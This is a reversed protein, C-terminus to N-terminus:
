VGCRKSTVGSVLVYERSWRMLGHVPIGVAVVVVVVVVIVIVSASKKEM